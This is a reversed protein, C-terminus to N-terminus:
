NSRRGFGFAVLMLAFNLIGMMSFPATRGINDFLIGGVFTCFLIGVGGMLGFVGIIAGRKEVPAEEGMLAGSAVLVSVEGIGLLIAVPIMASGLPNEIFGTASYGIGALAFAVGLGIMRDFRDVIVGIFYSWLLAAGQVLGFVMGARGLSQGTSLNSEIGFQVVWLSLFASIVVLDGRGIFASGYAVALRPNQRAARIGDTVQRFIDPQHFEPKIWGRMGLWVIFAAFIGFVSITWFSYRGAAIADAGQSIYWSPAKALLLAMIMVGLGTFISNIAVWKGRSIEQCSDHISVSLMVPACCAGIAFFIRYLMLQTETEALPYIFYGLSILFLGLTFVPKRGIRDSLAGWFGILIIAVIENIASLTGTLTGQREVPINLHETLIYPQALGMFNIIAITSFAAFNITLINTASLGPRFWLAGFNLGKPDSTFSPM